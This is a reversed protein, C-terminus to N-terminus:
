RWFFRSFYIQMSRGGAQVDEGNCMLVPMRMMGPDNDLGKLRMKSKVDNSKDHKMM